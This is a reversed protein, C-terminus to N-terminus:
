EGAGGGGGILENVAELNGKVRKTDPHEGGLVNRFIGVAREFAQRAGPLDGLDQLLSGLNSVDTAVKPHDPGFAQEDIKLAREYAQRAGPLDGLAKLVSGLNNVDTAVNPHDPGFAQEGIKLAREYAQRAGPLDGLDQLVVGLNNVDTAVDPHDPGFAREDIKLAREIAQRAGPLDGLDRLVAGLNNVRIAVKPHDPAFAQEDIKLSREYAQKAGPLDGLDHLVSGLNNLWIAVGPHHPGFAKEGVRIARELVSKAEVLEARIQLYLGIVSLLRGTAMPEIGLQEAHTASEKAHPLLEKIVPWTALNTLLDEPFAANVMKVAAAAWNGQLGPSKHARVIFQVLRHVSITEGKIDVLSYRRLAAIAERLDVPNSLLTAAKYPIHEAHKAFLDLPIDDPALFSCVKLISAAALSDSDIADLNIEISEVGTQEHDAPAREKAWLRERYNRFTHLYDNISQGSVEINAAAQTLFLPLGGLEGALQEAAHPEQKGTRAILFEAAPSIKLPSVNLPTAVARWNPNRSTIIVHGGSEHPLCGTLDAPQEANDFIILWSEHTALWALVADKKRDLEATDKEDLNLPGALDALGGIIDIHTEANVWWIVDYDAFSRHAYQVALQTKGIGGLGTLAQTLAAPRGSYLANKLDELLEDRGLFHRVPQRRLNTIHERREVDRRAPDIPTPRDSQRDRETSPTLSSSDSVQNV